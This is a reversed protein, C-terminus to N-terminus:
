TNSNRRIVRHFGLFNSRLELSGREGRHVAIPFNRGAIPHLFYISTAHGFIAGREVRESFFFNM